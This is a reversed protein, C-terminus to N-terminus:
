RIDCPAAIRRRAPGPGPPDPALATGAATAKIKPPQTRLVEATGAGAATADVRERGQMAMCELM